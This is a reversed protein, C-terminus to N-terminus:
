TSWQKSPAIGVARVSVSAAIRGGVPVDTIRFFRGVIGDDPSTVVEIVDDIQVHPSSQPLLCNVSSYYTPEDGLDFQSSGTAPTLGADGTYLVAKSSETYKRTTEDFGVLSPRRIIITSNMAGQSIAVAFMQALVISRRAVQSSLERIGM